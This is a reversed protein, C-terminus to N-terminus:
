IKETETKREKSINMRRKKGGQARNRIRRERTRNGIDIKIMGRGKKM